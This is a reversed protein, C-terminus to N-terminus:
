FVPSRVRMAVIVGYFVIMGILLLIDLGRFRVETYSTKKGSIGLGRTEVAAALESAVSLMRMLIPILMMEYIQFPHKLVGLVSVDIGRTKIGQRVCIVDQKMTPFFRLIVALPIIIYYPIKINHLATLVESIETTGTLNVVALAITVFCLIFYHITTAIFLPSIEAILFLGGYVMLFKMGTKFLGSLMSFIFVCLFLLIEYKKGTLAFVLIGTLLVQLLKIRPDYRIGHWKWVEPM